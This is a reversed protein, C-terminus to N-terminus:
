GCGGDWPTAGCPPHATVTPHFSWNSTTTTPVPQANRGPAPEPRSGSQAHAVLWVTILIALAALVMGIRRGWRKM